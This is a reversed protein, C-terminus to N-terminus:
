PSLRRKKPKAKEWWAYRTVKYTILGAAALERLRARKTSDSEEYKGIQIWVVGRDCADLKMKKNTQSLIVRKSISTPSQMCSSLSAMVCVLFAGPVFLKALLFPKM